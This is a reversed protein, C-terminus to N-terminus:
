VRGIRTLLQWWQDGEMAGTLTSYAPGCITGLFFPEISSAAQEFRESMWWTVATDPFTWVSEDSRRVFWPEDSIVGVCFWDDPNLQLSSGEPKEAYFQMTPVTKADFMVVPGCILGDAVKELFELYSMPAGAVAPAGMHPAPLSNMMQWERELPLSARIAEAVAGAESSIM